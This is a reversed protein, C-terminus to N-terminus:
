QEEEEEKQVLEDYASANLLGDLESEDATKVKFIWGTEYPDNNLLEPAEELARNVEVIVGSVPTFVDSVAKVSEIVAVQEKQKIQRETEPLEVFVIDNLMEQAHDTIGCVALGDTVRVWEHDETYRLDEPIKSMERM